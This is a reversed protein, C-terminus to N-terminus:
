LGLKNEARLRNWTALRVLRHLDFAQNDISLSTRFSSAARKTIFSYASLTGIADTMEKKSPAPPLISQPIRNADLCSMILLYEAALTNRLRIQQFSILWTTVVPNKLDRYRGDDEFDESLVNITTEEAEELLLLYEAISIENANIYAVAQVVALPLYTLQNLLQTRIQPDDVIEPCILSRKLLDSAVSEEM